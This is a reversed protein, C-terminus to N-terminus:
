HYKVQEKQGVLAVVEGEDLTFRDISFIEKKDQGEAIAFQRSKCCAFEEAASTPYTGCYEGSLSFCSSVSRQPWSSVERPSKWLSLPLLCGTQTGGLM